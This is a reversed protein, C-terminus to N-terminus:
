KNEKKATKAQSSKPYKSILELYTANAEAKKKQAKFSRAIFLLSRPAWSSRPFKTYIKSFYTLANDYKKKWFYLLGVNYRIHNRQAANVKKESLVALYLSLAKKQQNKEFAKHAKKLKTKSSSKTPGAMKSLTGTVKAIYKKQQKIEKSLVAISLKNTQNEQSLIKVQESLQAITQTFTMTTKETQTKNKHDIEEIQGSTSALRTQLDRVQLTLEAVLQSSQRIQIDRQKERKIEEATKFCSTLLFTISILTIIKTM